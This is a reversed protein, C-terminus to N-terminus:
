TLARRATATLLYLHLPDDRLPEFGHHTYFARARDHLADVTVACIGILSLWRNPSTSLLSM